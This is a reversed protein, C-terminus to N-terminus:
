VTREFRLLFAVVEGTPVVALADIGTFRFGKVLLVVKATLIEEALISVQSFRILALAATDVATSLPRIASAM